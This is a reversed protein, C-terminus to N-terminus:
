PAEDADEPFEVREYVEALKLTYQISTIKVAAKLGSYLKYRWAGDPLRHFHEVQPKDQSILIYDQLTPNWAQYRTFKEGRDFSETSPSLVEVIATPNVIVDKFKDHYEVDGCIVVVDPYSFMGKTRKGSVPAAPGSRIRSNGGRARCRKGRLHVYFLGSVNMTVDGHEDSEGAMAFIQGDLYTHREEAAREQELYEDVTLLTRTSRKPLAM